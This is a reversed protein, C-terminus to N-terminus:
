LSPVCQVSCPPQVLGCTTEESALTYESWCTRVRLDVGAISVAWDVFRTEAKDV